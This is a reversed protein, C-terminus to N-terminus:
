KPTAIMVIKGSSDPEFRLQSVDAGRVRYVGNSTGCYITDGVRDITHIYDPIDFKTVAGTKTNFRLLGGSNAAGEPQSMLGIWLDDSDLRMASGSWRVIEPLHRMQFKHSQLDFSGVAGVGSTGEGDYFTNAFWVTSGKLVFPGINNEIELQPQSEPRLQRYEAMTSV